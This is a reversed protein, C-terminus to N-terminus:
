HKFHHEGFEQQAEKAIRGAFTLMAPIDARLKRAIKKRCNACNLSMQFAIAAQLAALIDDFGDVGQDPKIAELIRHLIKDSRDEDM